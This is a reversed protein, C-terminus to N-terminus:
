ASAATTSLATVWALTTVRSALFAREGDTGEPDFMIVKGGDSGQRVDLVIRVRPSERSHLVVLDGPRVRRGTQGSTDPEATVAAFVELASRHVALWREGDVGFRPTRAVSEELLSSATEDEVLWTGLAALLQVAYWMEDELGELGDRKSAEVIDTEVDWALWALLGIVMSLEAFGEGDAEAVARPALANPGWAVALVASQLLDWEDDRDVLEHRMRRWEPRQEVLRLTRIVGLVAALQVVGRRARDPATALEFQGEMRKILRRVKGRCARALAEFDPAERALEGGDEDDAGIEDEDNRPRPSANTPLGEGLRRMLADLLVVIDGSALSRTRRSSRRGAADLALSAPAPTAEQEAGSTTPSHLPTTRVVDDSDFIVKETLKLLAELQTPDEELAGLAQRLAKRTDGGINKAIDEARHIIVLTHEKASLAELYRAGDRVVDVADVIGADRVVADGLVVDMDGVGRLILGEGLTDEVLFGTPTPTAVYIRRSQEATAETEAKRRTVVEDWDAATITPAGLLADIGLLRGADKRRDAVIAEANRADPRAFFAAVSPNASGTVLLEEDKGSFWLVKAHLYHSAGERRQPIDPIGAVNVWRVGELAAAETPDIEVSAPDIGIVLSTPRVERQFRRVFALAPDFFPGCIFATSVDKPILTALKAWLDPGTSSATLLQRDQVGTGLLGDLWPVGLKVSEFAEVVDPLQAPVFGALYDFAQRFLAGGGRLAAGELRFVNTVEDNLGFGSLTVNHSGVLLSGKSKGFRLVMKPHFAGGMKVPILTYDRGARRPRLEEIAFAEACRTADVMLVNHTCGAAMLRRLVVEEYFPFYCNYTTIVSARFGPEAIHDLLSTSSIEASV